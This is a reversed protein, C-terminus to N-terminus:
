VRQMHTIYYQFLFSGFFELVFGLIAFEIWILIGTQRSMKWRMAYSVISVSLGGFLGGFIIGRLFLNINLFENYAVAIALLMKLFALTYQIRKNLTESDAIYITKLGTRIAVMVVVSIILLRLPM